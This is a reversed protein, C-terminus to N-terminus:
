VPTIIGGVPLSTPLSIPRRLHMTEAIMGTYKSGAEPNVVVVREDAHIEGNARLREFAGAAAAGEPSLLIGEYTAWDLMSALTAADDSEVVGGASARVIEAVLSNARALGASGAAQVAYMRPRKGRVWGLQEMEEFAKWMGILAMGGGAGSGSCFVADPYVWGLQEVLEYGITKDGEVRYPECFASCDFWVDEAAMAGRQAEAEQLAIREGLMRACESIPGDVRTVEAGYAVCEVYDSFRVDKPMLIHATLQAAAAYAALAGAAHDGSAIALHRLGYHRAVAAALALGRAKYTGGPNTGEEKVFLRDDRRSRIMPTGSEGLTVPVVDPLVDAYRWIGNTPSAAALQATAERRAIKKLAEMDYRVYLAAGDM